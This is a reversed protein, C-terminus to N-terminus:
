KAYEQKTTHKNNIVAYIFGVFYIGASVYFIYQFKLMSEEKDQTQEKEQKVKEIQRVNHKIDFVAQKALEDYSKVEKQEEKLHQFHPYFNVDIIKKSYSREEFEKRKNTQMMEHIM